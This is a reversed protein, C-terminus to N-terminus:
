ALSAPRRVLVHGRRSSLRLWRGNELVVAPEERDLFGLTYAAFAAGAPLATSTGKIPAGWVTNRVSSILPAGANNPLALSVERIGELAAAELTEARVEDLPRWGSRPATIGTWAEQVTVDPVSVAVADYALRAMRDAMSALSVTTDLVIPRGLPMTRLGMITPSDQGLFSPKIVCVYAALVTGNAELRVAGDDVTRSRTIFTNLDKTVQSDPFELEDARPSMGEMTGSQLRGGCWRTPCSM